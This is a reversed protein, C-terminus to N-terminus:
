TAASKAPPRLAPLLAARLAQISEFRETREEATARRVVDALNRVDGGLASQLVQFPDRGPAPLSGTLTEHVVVGIAFIDSRADAEAGIKQEPPMYGQTGLAVGALTLAPMLGMLRVKALGFDLIKLTPGALFLNEPKLDRHVVGAEHAAEVGDLLQEIWPLATASPILRNRELQDRWTEGEVLEMVLYAGMAGVAGYDYVRIINPHTLRAAALAERDFRALAKENGFYDSLLIKIAVSRKLRLDFAEYVAGMGGKGLLRDLRYKADITRDLPLTPAPVQGDDPCTVASSDFVRGCEPCERFLNAVGKEIRQEAQRRQTREEELQEALWVKEFVVAVQGAVADLLRRDTPTYPEQSQKEGLLLAGAVADAAGRVPVALRVGELAAAEVATKLRLDQFRGDSSFVTALRGTSRDAALIYFSSPALAAQVGAAVTRAVDATSTVNKLKGPLGLLV